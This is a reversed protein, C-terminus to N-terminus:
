VTGCFALVLANVNRKEFVSAETKRALRCLNCFGDEEEKERARYGHSMDTAGDPTMLVRFFQMDSHLQALSFACSGPFDNDPPESLVLIM